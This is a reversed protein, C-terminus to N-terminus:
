HEKNEKLKKNSNKLKSIEKSTVEHYKITFFVSCVNTVSLLTILTNKTM